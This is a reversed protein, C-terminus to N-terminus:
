QWVKIWDVAFADRGQEKAAEWSPYWIDKTRWFVSRAAEGPNTENLHTCWVADSGWYGPNPCGNIEGGASLNIIIYFPKDFPANPNPSNEVYPGLPNKNPTNEENSFPPYNLGMPYDDPGFGKTADVDWLIVEEEWIFGAIDMERLVYAYMRSPSWYFGLTFFDSSWDCDDRSVTKNRCTQLIDMASLSNRTKWWSNGNYHICSSFFNRGGGTRGFVKPDNGKSELLDFEGSDPWQGYSNNVPMLWFAPWLWDGQPLRLRAELRGYQMEFQGKTNIRGSTVPNLPVLPTGIRECGSFDSITCNQNTLDLTSCAPFPTCNGVMVDAAPYTMGGKTTIPDLDAFLGPRIELKGDGMVVNEPTYYVFGGNGEGFLTKDPHWPKQLTKDVDFGDCLVLNDDNREAFDPRTPDGIFVSGHKSATASHHFKKPCLPTPKPAATPNSTPNPTPSSTSTATATSPSVTVNDPHLPPPVSQRIHLLDMIHDRFLLLLMFSAICVFGFLFWNDVCTTGSLSFSGSGNKRNVNNGKSLLPSNEGDYSDDWVINSEEDEDERVSSKCRDPRPAM